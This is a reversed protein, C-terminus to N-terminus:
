VALLLSVETTFVYILLSPIFCVFHIIPTAILIDSLVPKLVFFFTVYNYLSCNLLLM